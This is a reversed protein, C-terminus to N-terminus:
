RTPLLRPLLHARLWILLYLVSHQTIICTIYVRRLFIEPQTGRGLLSNPDSVAVAARASNAGIRYVEGAQNIAYMFNDSANYGIANFATTGLSGVLTPATASLTMSYLSPGGEGNTLIYALGDLCNVPTPTQAKSQYGWLLTLLAIIKIRM